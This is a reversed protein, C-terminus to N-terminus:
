KVLARFFQAQEELIGFIMEQNRGVVLETAENSSLPELDLVLTCFWAKEEVYVQIRETEVPLGGSTTM